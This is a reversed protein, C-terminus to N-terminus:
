PLFSSSKVENKDDPIKYSYLSTINSVFNIVHANLVNSYQEETAIAELTLLSSKVLFDSYDSFRSSHFAGFFQSLINKIKKDNHFDPNLYYLMLLTLSKECTIRKFLFLKSIGSILILLTDSHPQKEFLEILFELVGNNSICAAVGTANDFISIGYLTFIDFIASLAINKIDQADINIIQFLLVLYKEAYYSACTCYLSVCRIAEKRVSSRIDYVLNVIFTNMLTVASPCMLDVKRVLLIECVISLCTLITDANESGDSVEETVPEFKDEVIPDISNIPQRIESIVEVIADFVKTQSTAYYSYTRIIEQIVRVSVRTPASLINFSLDLAKQRFYNFCFYRGAEDNLEFIRLVSFLEILIHNYSEDINDSNKKVKRKGSYQQILTVIQVIEPVLRKYQSPSPTSNSMLFKLCACWVILHELDNHSELLTKNSTHCWSEITDFTTTLNDYELNNFIYNLTKYLFDRDEEADFLQIFTILCSACAQKVWADILLNKFCIKATSEKELIGANIISIREEIKLVKVPVSKFLREYITARVTSKTDYIRKLVLPLSKRTICINMCVVRRVNANTDFDLIPLYDNIVPCEEDEPNQIRSITLAAKLRVNPSCDHLRMRIRDSIDDLLGIDLRIDKPLSDIIKNLIDCVQYRVYKCSADSYSLITRIIYYFISEIEVSSQDLNASEKIKLVEQSCLFHVLLEITATIEKDQHAKLLIICVCKKIDRQFNKRNSKEYSHSLKSVSSSLSSEGNKFANFIEAVLM